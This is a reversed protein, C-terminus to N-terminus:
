GGGPTLSEREVRRPERDMELRYDFLEQPQPGTRGNKLYFYGATVRPINWWVLLANIVPALQSIIPPTAIATPLNTAGVKCCVSPLLTYYINLSEPPLILTWLILIAYPTWCAIQVLFLLGSM